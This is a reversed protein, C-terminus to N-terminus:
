GSVEPQWKKERKMKKGALILGLFNKKVKTPLYIKPKLINAMGKSVHIDGM